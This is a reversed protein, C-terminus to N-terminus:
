AAARYNDIEPEVIGQAALSGPWREPDLADLAARAAAADTTVKGATRRGPAGSPRRALKRRYYRITPNM